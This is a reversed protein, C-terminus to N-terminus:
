SLKHIDIPTPFRLKHNSRIICHFKGIQDNIWKESKWYDVFKGDTQYNGSSPVKGCCVQYEGRTSLRGYIRGFNCFKPLSM